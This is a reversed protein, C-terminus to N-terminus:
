TDNLINKCNDSFIKRKKVSESIRESKVNIKLALIARSHPFLLAALVASSDCVVGTSNAKKRLKSQGGKFYIDLAPLFFLIKELGTM